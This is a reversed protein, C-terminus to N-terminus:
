PHTSRGLLGVRFAAGGVKTSNGFGKRSSFLAGAVDQMLRKRRATETVQMQRDLRLFCGAPSGAETAGRRVDQISAGWRSVEEVMTLNRRSGGTVNKTSQMRGLKNHRKLNKRARCRGVCPVLGVAGDVM